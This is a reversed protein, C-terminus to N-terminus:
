QDTFIKVLTRGNESSDFKQRVFRHASERIPVFQQPCKSFECLISVWVPYNYPNLSFGSMKDQFAEPAGAQDSALVLLGSAMAEPVVNPIGDRDGKSDIIGTFLFANSGLYLEQVEKQNLGGLFTVQRVLGLRDREVLLERRLPGDGVIKLHFLVGAKKLLFAINLLHFYGKKEVLRGVSLLEITDSNRLQFDNAIPRHSISRPVLKIKSPHVGLLSLRHETSASSTRVFKAEALKIGLLWDGGDRFVDYAHAGMSFEIAELKSITFAATAPMTAWVAHILQYNKKKFSRAEVLAFGLGLFTECWNQLSHCPRSWLHFLVDKCARPKAFFWYPLWYILRFLTTINFRHITKNEWSYSGKWISYLDPSFNFQDFARLERRVFTETPRPFTAYLFAVKIM